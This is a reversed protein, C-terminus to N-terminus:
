PIDLPPIWRRGLEREGGGSEGRGTAAAAWSAEWGEAGGGV